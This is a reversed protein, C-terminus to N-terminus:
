SMEVVKEEIRLNQIYLMEEPCLGLSSRGLEFGASAM